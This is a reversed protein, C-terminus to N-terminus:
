PRFNRHGGYELEGEHVIKSDDFRTMFVNSEYSGIPLTEMPIQAARAVLWRPTDAGAAVSLPFGGGLRANIETFLPQGEKLICQVTIPGVAPLAEAIRKCGELVAGNHITVGKTVEGGRVEIRRRSVVALLTSDVDCVVDTTIEPGPLLEQVIPDEIYTLFFSLDKETQITYSNQSASGARPKIFLPYSMTSPNIDEPLWTLPVSLGLEKFFQGTKWKDSVVEAARASVVALSAGAIEIEARHAALVPIDPDILPFIRLPRERRCIELFTPIYSPDSLPPVLYPRDAEGLAPALPDIDLAVINSSLGLGEYAARFLRVLEVRRGVSTFLMCPGPEGVNM